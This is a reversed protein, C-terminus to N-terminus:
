APARSSFPRLARPTNTICYRVGLTAMRRAVDPADVTWVAVELGRLRWEAMREPTVHSHHPHVSYNAVDPLRALQPELAVDPDLLLGRALTPAEQAVRTLNAPNFSSLVVRGGLKRERVLRAVAVSLGADDPADCKLEVNILFGAPLLDFVETLLPIRAPAFGLRSGVDLARLAAYPTQRVEVHVGALRDLWEDHCVVVEGSGCIMADLEVGDAAQSVAEEFAALTNEPADASAGRHALLIM